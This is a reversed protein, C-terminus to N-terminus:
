FIGNSPLNTVPDGIKVGHTEAWGANVELVYQVESKPRFIQPFSNPLVNQTIDVVTKNSGIWIFDLPFRMNKMWFAPIVSHEYMFLMGSDEKLSPRESLGKQMDNPSKVVEAQLARKGVFITRTKFILPLLLSFAIAFLVAVVGFLFLFKVQQKSM